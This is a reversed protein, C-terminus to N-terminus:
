VEAFRTIRIEAAIRNRAYVADMTDTFGSLEHAIIRVNEKNAASTVYQKVYQKVKQQFHM